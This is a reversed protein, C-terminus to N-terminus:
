RSAARSSTARSRAPPARSASASTTSSATAQRRASTDTYALTVRVPNAPNQVAFVRNISDGSAGLVDQQDCFARPGLDLARKISPLGWGQVQDPVNANADGAGDDGGVLDTSANAIIAKTLAPSPPTGGKKQTYWERLLAAIGAVAPTSHSTGSSWAYLTNGAPFAGDCVGNGSFGGHQPRPGTVHTGPGVVDPKM